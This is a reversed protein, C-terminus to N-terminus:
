IFPCGNGDSDSYSTMYIDRAIEMLAVVIANVVSSVIWCKKNACGRACCYFLLFIVVTTLMLSFEYLQFSKTSLCITVYRVVNIVALLFSWFAYPRCALLPDDDTHLVDNLRCCQRLSFLVIVGELVEFVANFYNGSYFNNIGTLPIMSLAQTTFRYVVAATGRCDDANKIYDSVDKCLKLDCDKNCLVIKFSWMVVSLHMM